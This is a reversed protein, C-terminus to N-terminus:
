QKKSVFIMMPSTSTLSGREWSGYREVLTFGNYHLLAEVEPPYFFRRALPAHTVFTKGKADEKGKWRRVADEHFVQRVLDYRETGSVNVEHGALDIVSFWHQEEDSNVMRTPQLMIMTLVFLGDDALHEHVRALVAEHDARELLHVFSAGNDIILQFKRGLQFTRADGEAWQIPLPRELSASVTDAKRKGEMLMDMVLDVGAVDIGREALPIILRGTGCGLELVSGGGAHADEAMALFFKFDDSEPSFFPDNEIDYLAPDQYDGLNAFIADQTSAVHNAQNNATSM